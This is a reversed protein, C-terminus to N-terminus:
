LVSATTWTYTLVHLTLTELNLKNWKQHNELQMWKMSEDKEEKRDFLIESHRPVANENDTWWNRPLYAAETEQTHWPLQWSCVRVLTEITPYLGQPMLRPVSYSSQTELEIELKKLFKWTAEWAGTIAVLPSLLMKPTLESYITSLVWLHPFVPTLFLTDKCPWLTLEGLCSGAKPTITERRFAWLIITSVALRDILETDATSFM